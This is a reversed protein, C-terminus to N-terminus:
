QSRTPSRARSRRNWLEVLEDDLEDDDDDDADDDADIEIEDLPAPSAILRAARDRELELLFDEEFRSAELEFARQDGPKIVTKHTFPWLDGWRLKRAYKYGDRGILDGHSRAVTVRELEGSPACLEFVVHGKRKMPQRIVRSWDEFSERALSEHYEGDEEDEEDEKRDGNQTASKQAALADRAAQTAREADRRAASRRMKRLVVYSFKEDQYPRAGHKMERVYASRLTRQPFHCWTSFGDEANVDKLPCAKDHQCPAVVYAEVADESPEFDLRRADQEMDRRAVDLLMARARRILLSGRPTGPEALVLIGGPAVKDWLQRVTVDLQRQNRVERGRANVIHNDPIEGLAYSSVVVDFGGRRNAGRLSASTRIGESEHWPHPTKLRLASTPRFSRREDEAEEFDSFDLVRTASADVDDLADTLEKSAGMEDESTTLARELAATARREEEINKAYGTVRRAFRMMGPNSDVFAVKVDADRGGHTGVDDGFVARVAFLTTPVPGSGFDLVSRPKFSTGLRDRTEYLIRKLAGMTMPSRMVAYVAADLEDYKVEVSSKEGAREVDVPSEVRRLKRKSLRAGWEIDDDWSALAGGELGRTAGLESASRGDLQKADLEGASTELANVVRGGSSRKLAERLADFRRSVRRGVRVGREGGFADRVARRLAEETVADYSTMMGVRQRALAIAKARFARHEDRSLADVARGLRANLRLGDRARAISAASASTSAISTMARAGRRALTM